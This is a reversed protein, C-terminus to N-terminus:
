IKLTPKTSIPERTNEFSFRDYKLSVDLLFSSEESSYEYSMDGISEIKANHFTWKMTDKGLSDTVVIWFDFVLQTFTGTSFDLQSKAVDILEKYAILNEDVIVTFSLDSYTVSDANLSFRSGNRGGLEPHSFSIGPVNISSLFLPAIKLSPSGAMINSNQAFNVSNM